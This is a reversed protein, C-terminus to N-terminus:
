GNSIGKRNFIVIEFLAPCIFAILSGTFAGNISIILKLNSIFYAAGCALVNIVTTLLTFEIWTPQLLTENKGLILESLAFKCPIIMFM